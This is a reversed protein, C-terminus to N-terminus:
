DKDDDDIDVVEVDKADNDRDVVVVDEVKDVVEDVAVEEVLVDAEDEDVTGDIDVLLVASLVDEPADVEEPPDELILEVVEWVEIEEDALVDLVDVIDEEIVDAEEPLEVLM